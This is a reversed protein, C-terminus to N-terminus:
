NRPLKLRLQGGDSEPGLEELVVGESTLSIRVDRGAVTIEVADGVLALHPITIIDGERVPRRNLSAQRTPRANRPSTAHTKILIIGDNFSGLREAKSDAASEIEEIRFNAHRVLSRVVELVDALESCLDDRNTSEVVEQAEEILKAILMRQRDEPPVLVADVEEHNAKIKSPIGDRVLKGFNQLRRTRLHTRQSPVVISVGKKKLLYFAHALGSGRLEISHKGSLCYLAVLELFENDRMYRTIPMLRLRHPESLPEQIDNPSSVEKIPLRRIRSRDTVTTFTKPETSGHGEDPQHCFWPISRALHSNNRIDVFWMVRLRHGFKRALALTAQAVKAVDERSISATRAIDRRVTEISWAGDGSECLFANKYPIHEASLSGIGTDYEFVDCDLYQLGDPLGWLADVQVITEQPDAEAWAASVAPIFAHFILVVGEPPAARSALVELATQIFSVIESPSVTDTRPLNLGDFDRRMQPLIDCRGVLRHGITERLAKEPDSSELFAEAKSGRLVFLSPFGGDVVKAFESLPELKRFGSFSGASWQELFENPPGNPTDEEVDHVGHRPDIGHDPAEDELDIQVIWIAQHDYLWEMHVRSDFTTAAWNGVAGLARRIDGGRVTIFSSTDPPIDRQSNLRFDDSKPYDIEVQWQNRTKSVRRENSLHGRMVPRKWAQAIVAMSTRASVGQDYLNQLADGVSESTPSKLVYSEFTGRDALTEAFASSRLIIPAQPFEELIQDALSVWATM